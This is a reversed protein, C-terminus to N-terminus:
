DGVKQYEVRDFGIRSVPRWRRDGRFYQVQGRLRWYAYLFRYPFVELVTQLILKTKDTLSYRPYKGESHRIALVSLVITFSYGGGIVLAAPWHLCHLIAALGISSWGLLEM